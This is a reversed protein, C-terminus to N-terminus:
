TPLTSTADCSPEPISAASLDSAHRLLRASLLVGLIEERTGMHRLLRKGAKRLGMEVDNFVDMAAQDLRRELRAVPREEFWDAVVVYRLAAGILEAQLVEPDLPQHM